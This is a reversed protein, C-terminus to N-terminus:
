ANGCGSWYGPDNEKKAEQVTELYTIPLRIHWDAKSFRGFLGQYLYAEVSAAFDLYILAPSKPGLSLMFESGM